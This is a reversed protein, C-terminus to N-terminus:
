KFINPNLEHEYRKFLYPSIDSQKTDRTIVVIDNKTVYYSYNFIGFNIYGAKNQINTVLNFDFKKEQLALKKVHVKNGKESMFAALIAWNRNIIKFTEGQVNKTSKRVDSHYKNKCKIDCFIKDSRGFLQKKCILCGRDLQYSNNQRM